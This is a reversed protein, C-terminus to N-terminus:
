ESLPVHRWLTYQESRDAGICAWSGAPLLGQEGGRACCSGAGACGLACAPWGVMGGKTAEALSGMKSTTIAVKAGPVLCDRLASVVRLPGLANVEFQM